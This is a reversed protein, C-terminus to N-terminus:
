PLCGKLDELTLTGARLVRPAEGTCDLVTSATGSAPSPVPQDSTAYCASASPAAEALDPAISAAAVADGLLYLGATRAVLARDLDEVRATDSAGSLNASTVALPCGAARILGLAVESAPMRLGITGAPSQFAPPVADSARVVLTLGGPWFAEALRRAYAPVDEGYVDLAEPGEVLWAVPKGADRHKRDYLLQPGAAAGVSVGLGFVTDTPFVVANGDALARAAEDRSLSRRAAVIAEAVRLGDVAASTIGGAYGAGEGCPYLGAINSQFRDDRVIRVPSSSRAEVATMVAGADAFGHLKRGLAPLAEALADAVFSPLCGRLDCWAVGRPYTPTVTASPTGATHALFDGVTQAPATYPPMLAGASEEAIDDSGAVAEVGEAGNCTMGRGLLYADRELQRQFAVGELSDDGPLDDPRVEVLLAANANAGARAHRSMGNVCLLGEESAAAVVEGGPCMCFSYVGRGDATKVALKYDAAGLAPHGAAPGYQAENVLAQPHEIRVGVAFPKRAMAAGAERVMQFTDRASHGCALVICDTAFVEEAGTREDVLRVAAIRPEDDERGAGKSADAVSSEAVGEGALVLGDLRTLFRVEGGAEEIARRLNRVVDVLLDTGIHPKADVLIDTPAGAEVFTELVHRIHPSKIGTNLKGDSFTGAGGEGFQINTREDLPAGANFAEVVAVREDVSTGREVVLPQLGARALYLACFLGAPGAGVVVPRLGTPEVRPISLPAAPEYAKVAVGKASRPAAGEALEVAVTVVGHVNSKKRADISRKLLKVEVLASGKVGLARAIERRFLSENKPLLADLSVPVNSAQIM